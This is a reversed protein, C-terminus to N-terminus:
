DAHFPVLLTGMMYGTLADVDFGGMWFNISWPQSTGIVGKLRREPDRVVPTGQIPFGYFGCLGLFQQASLTLGVYGENGKVLDDKALMGIRMALAAREVEDQSAERLRELERRRQARYEPYDVIGTVEAALASQPQVSLSRRQLLEPYSGAVEDYTLDPRPPDWLDDVRLSIGDTAIELHFPDIPMKQYLVVFGREGFVPDDLLNVHAGVLPHDPLVVPKQTGQPDVYAVEHVDVGIDHEHPHRPAVPDQLRILGDFDPEGPVVITSGSIGRPEDNPDPDLAMRLQWWGRFGIQLM